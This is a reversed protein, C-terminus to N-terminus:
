IILVGIYIGCLINALLLNKRATERQQNASEAREEEVAIIQDLAVENTKKTIASENMLAKDFTTRVDIATNAYVKKVTTLFTSEDLFEINATLDGHTWIRFNESYDAGPLHVRIQLNEIPDEFDESLIAFYLEAVDEHLVVMDELTYEILFAVSENEARYYMKFSKGNQISSEVYNGNEADEEYYAKTLTTFNEEFSDFTIEKEEVKKASLSVDSIGSGNYIADASFDIPEHYELIPNRYPINIWYGNFNGDLVILEKVRLDGNDLITADVLFDTVDYNVRASVTVPLIVLLLFWFIKKM